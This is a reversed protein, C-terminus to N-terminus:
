GDGRSKESRHGVRHTPKEISICANEDDGIELHGMGKPKNILGAILQTLDQNAEAFQSRVCSYTHWLLPLDCLDAPM